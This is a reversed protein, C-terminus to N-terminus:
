SLLLLFNSMTSSEFPEYGTLSVSLMEVATVCHSLANFFDTHETPKFTCYLPGPVTPVWILAAAPLPDPLQEAHTEGSNCRCSIHDPHM